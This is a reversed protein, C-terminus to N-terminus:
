STMIVQEARKTPFGSCLFHWLEDACGGTDRGFDGTVIVVGLVVDDKRTGYKM